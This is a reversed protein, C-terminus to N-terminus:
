QETEEEAPAFVVSESNEKQITINQYFPDYDRKLWGQSEFEDISMEMEAKKRFPMPHDYIGFSNREMNKM